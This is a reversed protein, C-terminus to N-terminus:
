AVWFACTATARHRGLARTPKGYRGRADPRIRGAISAASRRPAPRGGPPSAASNDVEAPQVANGRDANRRPVPGRPAARHAPARASHPQYRAVPSLPWRRQHEHNTRSSAVESSVDAERNSTTNGPNLRHDARHGRVIGGISSSGERYQGGRTALLLGAAAVRSISSLRAAPIPADANARLHGTARM